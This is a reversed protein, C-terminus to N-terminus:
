GIGVISTVVDQKLEVNIRNSRIECTGMQGSHRISYGKNKLFRKAEEFTKGLINKKLDEVSM